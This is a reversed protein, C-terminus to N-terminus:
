RPLVVHAYTEEQGLNNFSLGVLVKCIKLENFLSGDPPSEVDIANKVDPVILYISFYKISM